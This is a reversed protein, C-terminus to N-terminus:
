PALGNLQDVVSFVDGINYHDVTVFNPLRGSEAQCQEARDIFLPDYNVMEALQPSGFFRTLFHNLIFLRNAMSGRNIACSFDEPNEFSYHTEWAYDWVYHHWPLVSSSRDTFVVLRTDAAILERLTPWPDAMAQVHTYGLLGSAMFAALTDAESIYSEFIISVVESPRRDLFAKIEALGDALPKMGSRDCPFVDGGHCLVAAGAFYWTDLMLGRVGDDLQRAVAFTQNPVLWGEEANSMANHTTPYSVADYRRDCLAQAGNCRAIARTPLCIEREGLADLTAAGFQDAARLGREPTRAGQGRARKATYCTLSNAAHKIPSGLADVPDCLRRLRKLAYVVAGSPEQVTVQQGPAFATPGGHPQAAHCRFHDLQGTDPDPPSPPTAPDIAAPVLLLDPAAGREAYLEGLQNLVQVDPEAEYPASDVTARAKYGILQTATDLVGSGLDIPACLLRLRRLDLPRTQREDTVDVTTGVFRPTGRAIRARYCM